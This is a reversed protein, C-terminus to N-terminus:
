RAPPWALPVKGGGGPTDLVYHLMALEPAIERLRAVISLGESVSLRFRATGPVPDSHHLYYPHVGCRLLRRFLEALVEADDNVGKLLVAQNSLPLGAAALMALARRAPATIERPHNFHVALWLPRHRALLAALAPTIRRPEVCPTRTHIRIVQLHAITRLAQLITALRGDSLILPDGGSLIVERVAPTRRLYEIGAAISAEGVTAGALTKRKRMCFRCYMPCQGTVLLLARDPYRHTLHPTPSYRPHDEALFDEPLGAEELEEPHPVAQRWLPDDPSEVLALYHAPIRLRYRAAVGRLAGEDVPLRRALQALTGVPAGGEAPVAEEPGAGRGPGRGRPRAPFGGIEAREPNEGM